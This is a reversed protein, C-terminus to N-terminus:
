ASMLVYSRNMVLELGLIPVGKDLLERTSGARM